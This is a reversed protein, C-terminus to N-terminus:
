SGYGRVKDGPHLEPAGEWRDHKGTGKHPSGVRSSWGSAAQRLGCARDLACKTSSGAAKAGGRAQTHKSM